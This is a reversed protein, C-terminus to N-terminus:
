EVNQAQERLKEIDSKVELALGTIALGESEVGPTKSLLTNAERQMEQLLFDLKKGAEGAGNLLKGFQEVHSRLRALEESVDSREALISAEQALRIPDVQVGKLLEGLRIELRNAIAPRVRETLIEIESTRSGIRRLIGQMEALLSQGEMRRMVELKNLAQELCAEVQAGLREQKEESQLEGATGPAAVVGPLRLLSVLDPEVKVSFEKRLREVAKLYSGAIEHNVEIAGTGGAEYYINIDVHGRRLRNRVAQRIRSEFVEFGDPMRLHLDLFRHNVSRLNIRVASGEREVRAQAFGTMSYIGETATTAKM